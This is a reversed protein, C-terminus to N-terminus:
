GVSDRQTIIAIRWHELTQFTESSRWYDTQDDGDDVERTEDSNLWESYKLSESEAGLDSSFHGTIQRTAEKRCFLLGKM